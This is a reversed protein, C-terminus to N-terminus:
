AIMWEHGQLTSTSTVSTSCLAVDASLEACTKILNSKSRQQGQLTSTSTVSTSCLAM